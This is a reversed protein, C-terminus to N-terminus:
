YPIFGHGCLLQIVLPLPLLISSFRPAVKAFTKDGDVVAISLAPIHFHDLMEAVRDGFRQNLPGDATKPADRKRDQLPHQVNLCGVLGSVLGLLLWLLLTSTLM